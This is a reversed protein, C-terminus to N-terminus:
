QEQFRQPEREAFVAPDLQGSCSAEALKLFQNEAWPPPLIDESDPHSRSISDPFPGICVGPMVVVVQRSLTERRSTGQLRRAQPKEWRGLM